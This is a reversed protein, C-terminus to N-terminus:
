YQFIMFVCTGYCYCHCMGDYNNDIIIQSSKLQTIFLYSQLSWRTGLLGDLQASSLQPGRPKDSALSWVPCQYVIAHTCGACTGASCIELISRPARVWIKAAQRVAGDVAELVAGGSHIWEGEHPAGAFEWSSRHAQNVALHPTSGRLHLSGSFMHACIQNEM